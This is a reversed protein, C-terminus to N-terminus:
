EDLFERHEAALEDFARLQGKVLRTLNAGCAPCYALPFSIMSAVGAAGGMGDRFLPLIAEDPLERLVRQQNASFARAQVHFTRVGHQNTAVVSLGQEGAEHLMNALWPCCTDISM